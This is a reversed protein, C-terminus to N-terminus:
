FGQIDKFANSQRHKTGFGLVGSSVISSVWSTLFRLLPETAGETLQVVPCDTQTQRCPSLVAPRYTEFLQLPALSRGVQLPEWPISPHTESARLQVYKGRQSRAKLMNRRPNKQLKPIAHTAIAFRAQTSKPKEPPYYDATAPTHLLLLLLLLLPLYHCAM